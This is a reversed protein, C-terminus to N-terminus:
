SEPSQNQATDGRQGRYRVLRMLKMSSKNPRIKYAIGAPIVLAFETGLGPKSRISLKGGVTDTRERVGALGWHGPRGVDLLSEDMGCGDDRVILRFATREYCVESEIKSAKSHQVANILLERGIRYSEECVVPNLPQVQGVVALSLRAPQDQALEEVCSMLLQSLDRGDTPEARLKRIQDRGEVLVDDVRDLAKEMMQRAPGEPLQNLVTQFRLAVGCVGQLLTDHLERAIREREVLREDLRAQIEAVAQRLRLLYLTWLTIGLTCICITRFWWTAWWAPLIRINLAVGAQSWPGRSTAGQVRFTYNGSPLTTYTVQRAEAGVESWDTQLGEM